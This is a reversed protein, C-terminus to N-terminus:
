SNHELLAVIQKKQYINILQSRLFASNGLCDRKFVCRSMAYFSTFGEFWRIGRYSSTVNRATIHLAFCSKVYSSTVNTPTVAGTKIHFTVHRSMPDRKSHRLSLFQICCLLTVLTITLPPTLISVLTLANFFLFILLVQKFVFRPMVQNSIVQLWSSMVTVVLHLSKQLQELCTTWGRHREKSQPLCLDGRPIRHPVSAHWALLIRVFNLALIERPLCIEPSLLLFASLNM